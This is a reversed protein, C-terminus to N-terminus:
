GGLQAISRDILQHQASEDLRDQLQAEVRQMALMAVRERLEAIAREQESNVDQNASEKIREVERDATALIKEKAKQANEEAEALIRKAEEQAQALKQQAQKLEAEASKARGEAERIEQEIQERRQTLINGLFKRGYFFLVGIIIVLNVINSQFLDFSLRYGGEHETAEAVSSAAETALYFFTGM